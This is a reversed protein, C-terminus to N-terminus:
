EDEFETKYKNKRYIFLSGIIICFIVFGYMFYDKKLVSQNEKTENSKITKPNLRATGFTYNLPKKKTEVSSNIEEQQSLEQVPEKEKEIKEQEEASDNEESHFNIANCESSKTNEKFVWKDELQWTKENNESDELLNTEAVLDGENYLFVKEDSNDLWQKELVYICNGKVSIDLTIEDGDNNKLLYNELNIEEESYFEIWEYGSDTGEPNLEVESIKLGSCFATSVVLVFIFIMLFSKEM